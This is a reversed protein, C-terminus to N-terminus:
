KQLFPLWATRSASSCSTGWHQFAVSIRSLQLSFPSHILCPPRVRAEEQPIAAVRDSFDILRLDGYMNESSPPFTDARVADWNAAKGDKAAAIAARCGEKLWAQVGTVQSM